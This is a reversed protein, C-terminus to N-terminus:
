GKSEIGAISQFLSNNQNNCPFLMPCFLVPFIFVTALVLLREEV